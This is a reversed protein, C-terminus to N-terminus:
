EFQRRTKWQRHAFVAAFGPWAIGSLPSAPGIPLRYEVRDTMRTGDAIAEFRHTHHWRPFPGDIMEDVFMARDGTLERRRIRSTWSQRPGVGFPRVSLTVEDGEDLEGTKPQGDPGVLSEVRLNFWGPTVVELGDVAAHFRWVEELPAPLRVSREYVAM